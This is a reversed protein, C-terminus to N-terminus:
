CPCRSVQVRYQSCFQFLSEDRRDGGGQASATIVPGSASTTATEAPASPNSINNSSNGAEAACLIVPMMLEWFEKNQCSKIEDVQSNCNNDISDCVEMADPNIVADNDNCDSGGCSIDRYGDADSDPCALNCDEDTLGDCDNDVADGCIEPAAPYITSDADNCDGQALTFGDGDNDILTTDILDAGDCNEDIGNNPIDVAGPNIGSNGDNCDVPGCSGGEIAFGDGDNDTCAPPPPPSTPCFYDTLVAGGALFADKAPTPDAKAGIHCLACDGTYPAAPACLSNVTSGYSGFTFGNTALLLIAGAVAFILCFITSKFFQM